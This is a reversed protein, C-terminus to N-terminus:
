YVFILNFIYVFFMWDFCMQMGGYTVFSDTNNFLCCCLVCVICSLCLDSGNVFFSFSVFYFGLKTAVSMRHDRALFCLCRTYLANMWLLLLLLLRIQIARTHRIVESASSHICSVSVPMFVACLIVSYITMSSPSVIVCLQLVNLWLLCLKYFLLFLLSLDVASFSPRVATNWGVNLDNQM